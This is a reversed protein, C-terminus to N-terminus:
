RRLARPPGDTALLEIVGPKEGGLEHRVGHDGASAPDDQVSVEVANAPEDLHDIAPWPKLPLSSREVEVADPTAPQADDLRHGAAPPDVLPVM